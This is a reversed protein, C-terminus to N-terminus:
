QFGSNPAAADPHWVCAWLRCSALTAGPPYSQHSRFGHVSEIRHVPEGAEDAKASHALGFHPIRGSPGSLPLTLRSQGGDAQVLRHAGLASAVCARSDYAPTHASPARERIVALFAHDSPSVVWLDNLWSRNKSQTGKVNGRTSHGCRARPPTAESARPRTTEAHCVHACESTDQKSATRADRASLLAASSRRRQSSMLVRM